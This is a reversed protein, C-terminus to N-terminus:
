RVIIHMQAYKDSWHQQDHPLYHAVHPKSNLSIYLYIGECVGVSATQSNYSPISSMGM